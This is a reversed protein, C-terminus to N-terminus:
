FRLWHSPSPPALGHRFHEVLAMVYFVTSVILRSLMRQWSSMDLVGTSPDCIGTCNHFESHLCSPLHARALSLYLADGDRKIGIYFSPTV